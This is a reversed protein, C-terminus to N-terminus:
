RMGFYTPPKVYNAVWESEWVNKVVNWDLYFHTDFKKACKGPMLPGKLTVNKM